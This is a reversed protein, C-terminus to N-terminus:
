ATSIPHAHASAAEYLAGRQVGDNGCTVGVQMVKTIVVVSKMAHSAAAAKNIEIALTAHHTFSLRQGLNARQHNRRGPSIDDNGGVRLSMKLDGAVISAAALLISIMRAKTFDAIGCFKVLQDVEDARKRSNSFAD